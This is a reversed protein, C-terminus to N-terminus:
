LGDRQHALERLVVAVREAFGEPVQEPLADTPWWRVDESEPSVVPTADTPAIAVYGVDWHTTCRGFRSSLAHRHVDVPPPGAPGAPRLGTIGGEERAERLAAAAVSADAPEVHGGLQVWFRGKKHFCLLLHSLHPNFVFCSATVHEAGGDRDLAADGGARVFSLYEARLSAQAPDVPLWTALSTEFAQATNSHIATSM